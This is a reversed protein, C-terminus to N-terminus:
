FISAGQYLWQFNMKPKGLVLYPFQINLDELHPEKRRVVVMTQGPLLEAMHRFIFTESRNGLSPSIVAFPYNGM